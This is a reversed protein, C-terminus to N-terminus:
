CLGQSLIYTWDFSTYNNWYCYYIPFTVSLIIHTRCTATRPKSNLLILQIYILMTICDVSYVLDWRSSYQSLFAMVYSPLIWPHVLMPMDVNHVWSLYQFCTDLSVSFPGPTLYLPLWHFTSMKSPHISLLWWVSWLLYYWLFPLCCVTLYLDTNFSHPYKIM